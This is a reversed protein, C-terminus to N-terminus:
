LVCWIFVIALAIGYAAIFGVQMNEPGNICLSGAVGSKM